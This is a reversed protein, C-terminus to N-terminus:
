IHDLHRNTVEDVMKGDLRDLADAIVDEVAKISVLDHKEDDKEIEEDDPINGSFKVLYLEGSGLIIEDANDIQAKDSM